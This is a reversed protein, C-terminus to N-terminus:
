KRRRRLAGIMGIGMLVAASSPEPVAVSFQVITAVGTGSGTTGFGRNDADFGSGFITQVGSESFEVGGTPFFTNTISDARSTVVTDGDLSLAGTHTYLLLLDGGTYVFDNDFEIEPGFDNATTSIDNITTSTASDYDAADFDLAGSRVTSLTGNNAFVDDLSGASNSSHGLRIVYDSVTFNPSDRTGDVRFALGTLTDGASIGAANVVSENYVTFVTNAFRGLSTSEGGGNGENTEFNDHIVATTQGQALPAFPAIAMAFCVVSFSFLRKMTLDKSTFLFTINTVRDCGSLRRM